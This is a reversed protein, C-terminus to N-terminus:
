KVQYQKIQTKLEQTQQQAQRNELYYYIATALFIKGLVFVGVLVWKWTKHVRMHTTESEVEIYRDQKPANDYERDKKEPALRLSKPETTILESIDESIRTFLGPPPEIAMRGAIHEMDLELEHLANKIEPYQEKFRLLERQEAESASGVMYTELIGSEIYEKIYM